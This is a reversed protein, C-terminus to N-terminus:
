YLDMHCLLLQKLCQPRQFASTIWGQGPQPGLCRHARCGGCANSHVGHRPTLAGLLCVCDPHELYVPNLVSWVWGGLLGAGRLAHVPVYSLPSGCMRVLDKPLLCLSLYVCKNGGGSQIQWTLQLGGSSVTKNGLNVATYVYYM